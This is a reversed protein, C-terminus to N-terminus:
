ESIDVMLYIILLLLPIFIYIGAVLVILIINRLLPNNGAIISVIAMMVVLLLPSVVGVVMFIEAIIGLSEIREKTKEQQEKMLSRTESTLYFTLDGGSTVTSTIGDLFSAWRPSPSRKAANHLATLLDYGFIEIDRAIRRAEATIAGKAAEERALSSFIKDPPVGSSAMAAMYSAVSPLEREIETKRGSAIIAPAFYYSIFILIATVIGMILIFTIFGVPIHLFTFLPLIPAQNIIRLPILQYLGGLMAGIISGILFAFLTAALMEGVYAKTSIPLGSKALFDHLNDFVYTKEIRLELKREEESLLESLGAEGSPEEMSKEEPPAEERRLQGRLRTLRELESEPPPVFRNYVRSFYKVGFRRLKRRFWTFFGESTAVSM